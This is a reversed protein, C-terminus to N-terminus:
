NSKKRRKKEEMKERGLAALTEVEIKSGDGHDLQSRYYYRVLAAGLGALVSGFFLIKTSNTIHGSFADRQLRSFGNLSGALAVVLIATAIFYKSRTGM